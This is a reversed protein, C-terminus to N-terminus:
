RAYERGKWNSRVGRWYRLASSWTMALYLSGTLPLLLAFYPSVRYYHVVPLYSVIMALVAAFAVIGAPTPALFVGAAPLWYAFLFITTVAVLLLSSYRLQTYASRAVMAHISSLTGYRRLSIVDRSLGVWTRGGGEKIRRALACDDILAGRLAAFAGVGRLAATDVLVCGGAAASVLRSRSNSVAFPYLLKFYYVFAPLLLRDWFTARRLDAMLSVFQLGHAHKYRLLTPLMGRELRIDADLLLTLPTRVSRLGQDLAWLKGVWGDPLDGSDVVEANASRAIEATGDTSQDDIVVIRLNRGQVKLCGLTTGIVASEDRAPILVTVDSLDVEDNESCSELSERTLWPLWPSLLVGAWLLAGPVTLWLWIAESHMM